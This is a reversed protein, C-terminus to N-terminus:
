LATLLSAVLCASFQWHHRRKIINALITVDKKHFPNIFSNVLLEPFVMQNDFQNM